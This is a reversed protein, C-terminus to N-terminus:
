APLEADPAQERGYTRGSPRLVLRHKYVWTPAKSERLEKWSTAYGLEVLRHLHRRVTHGTQGTHEALEDATLAVIGDNHAHAYM